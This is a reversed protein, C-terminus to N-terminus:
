YRTMDWAHGGGSCGHIGGLAVMCAGSAVVCAGGSCGCVGGPAVVCAGGGSCGCMGGQLLWAHGGWLLWACGGPAVVCAGGPAVMCGGRLLWVDGEPAVMSAGEGPAVVCAGRSCGHLGGRHVSHCVHTFVYGECVVNAPPLFVYSFSFSFHGFPINLNQQTLRSYDRARTYKRKIKVIPEIAMEDCANTNKIFRDVLKLFTEKLIIRFHLLNNLVGENQTQQFRILKMMVELLPDSTGTQVFKAIPNGYVGFSM